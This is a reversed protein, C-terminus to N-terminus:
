GRRAVSRRRLGSDSTPRDSRRRRRRGGAVIALGLASLAASTGGISAGGPTACRCSRASTSSLLGADAGGGADVNAGADTPGACGPLAGCFTALPAGNCIGASADAACALLHLKAAFTVGDDSSVGAVFGSHEDSCAWLEAGHTALCQVRISSMKQFALAGRSAMFLGDEVSGAYVKSGDPSLAFGLMAGTLSLATQFTQGADATVLLRSPTSVTRVYVLDADTERAIDIPVPREVWSAGDDDSVFLSASRTANAGRLASAYVRQPDTSAVDITTVLAAPDIPTGLASWDAGDDTSAYLQQAYGPGGDIGASLGYTSTMALVVDAADPRVAMDKVLQLSLPGSVSAWTCGTDPSVVVGNELEPSAVVSGSATVEILPDEISNSPVGLADECLWGWNTGHDHSVLLGYTTRVIVLDPDIPSVVLRNSAPYRGNARAGPALALVLAGAAAILAFRV